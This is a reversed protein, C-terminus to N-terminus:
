ATTALRDVVRRLAASALACAAHLDPNDNAAAIVRPDQLASRTRGPAVESV